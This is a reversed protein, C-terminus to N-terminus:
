LATVNLADRRRAHFVASMHHGRAVAQASVSAELDVASAARKVEDVEGAKAQDGDPAGKELDLKM